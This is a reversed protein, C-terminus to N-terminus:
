RLSKEMMSLWEWEPLDLVDSRTDKGAEQLTELMRSADEYAAEAGMWEMILHIDKIGLTDM